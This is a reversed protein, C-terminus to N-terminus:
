NNENEIVNHINEIGGMNRRYKVFHRHLRDEMRVYEWNNDYYEMGQESFFGGLLKFELLHPCVMGDIKYEYTMRM